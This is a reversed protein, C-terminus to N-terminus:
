TVLYHNETNQLIMISEGKMENENLKM